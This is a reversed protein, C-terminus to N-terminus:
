QEEVQFFQEPDTAPITWTAQQVGSTSGVPNWTPNSLDSKSQLEYSKSLGMNEATVDVSGSGVAISMVPPDVPDPIQYAWVHTQGGTNFAHLSSLGNTWSINPTDYLMTDLGGDYTIFGNEVYNSVLNIQNGGMQFVGQDFIMEANDDLRFVSPAGGTIRFTGGNLEITALGADTDNWDAELGKTILTGGNLIVFGNNGGTGVRLPNWGGTSADLTGGNMILTGEASRGGFNLTASGATTLTGGNMIVQGKSTANWGGANLTGNLTISGSNVVLEGLREGFLGLDTAGLVEVSGGDVLLIGKSGPEGDDTCLGLNTVSLSGYTVVAVTATNINGVRLVGVDVPDAIVLVDGNATHLATDELTPASQPFWNLGTTWLQDGISNNFTHTLANSDSVAPPIAPSLNYSWVTTFGNTVDNYDAFLATGYSKSWYGYDFTVSNSWSADWSETLMSELGLEYTVLGNTVLDTFAAVQDGSWYFTGGQFHLSAEDQLTVTPDLQWWDGDYFNITATGVDNSADADMSLAHNNVLTGGDLNVTGSGSGIGIQFSSSNGNTSEAYVGGYLNLTGEDSDLNGGGLITHNLVNLIGDNVTIEGNVGSAQGETGIKVNNLVDITGSNLFVRAGGQSSSQGAVSLNNSVTMSGGNVQLDSLVYGEGSYENLAVDNASTLSGNNTIILLNDGSSHRSWWRKVEGAADLTIAQGTWNATDNTFTPVSGIDWNASNTWLGDGATGTWRAAQGSAFMTMAATLVAVMGLKKITTMVM